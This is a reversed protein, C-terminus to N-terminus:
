KPCPLRSTSPCTIVDPGDITAINAEAAFCPHCSITQLHVIMSAHKTTPREQKIVVCSVNVIVKGAGGKRGDRQAPSAPRGGFVCSAHSPVLMKSLLKALGFRLLMVHM